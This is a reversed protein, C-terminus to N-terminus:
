QHAKVTVFSLLKASIPPCAVPKMLTKVDACAVAQNPTTPHPIDITQTTIATTTYASM